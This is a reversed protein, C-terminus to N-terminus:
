SMPFPVHIFFNCKIYCNFNTHGPFNLTFFMKKQNSTNLLDLVLRAGGIMM